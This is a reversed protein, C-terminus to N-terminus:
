SPEGGLSLQKLSSPSGARKEERLGRPSILFTRDKSTPFLHSHSMSSLLLTGFLDPCLSAKLWNKVESLSVFHLVTNHTRFRSLFDDCEVCM